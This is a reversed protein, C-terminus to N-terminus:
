VPEALYRARFAEQFGMSRYLEIAVANEPRVHLWAHSAGLGQGWGALAGCIARALGQRRMGSAVGVEHISLWGAEIVGYGQAIVDGAAEIRAFMKPVHIEEHIDALINQEESDFRKASRAYAGRWIADSTPKLVVRTDSLAFRGPEGVLCIAADRESYGLRLLTAETGDPALPTVRVATRIKKARCLPQFLALATEIDAAQDEVQTLSNARNTVGHAFRWRWGHQTVHELDPLASISLLELRLIDARTM